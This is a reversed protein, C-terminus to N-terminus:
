VIKTGNSNHYLMEIERRKRDRKVLYQLAAVSKTAFYPKLLEHFLTCTRQCMVHTVVDLQQFIFNWIDRPVWTIDFQKSHWILLFEPDNYFNTNHVRVPLPLEVKSTASRQHGASITGRRFM